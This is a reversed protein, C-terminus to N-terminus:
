LSHCVFKTLLSARAEVKKKMGSLSLEVFALGYKQFDGFKVEFFSIHFGVPHLSGMASWGNKKGQNTRNGNLLCNERLAAFFHQRRSKVIGKRLLRSM